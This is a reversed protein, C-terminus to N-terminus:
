SADDKNLAVVRADLGARRAVERAAEVAIGRDKYAGVVPAYWVVGTRDTRTQVSAQYGRGALHGAIAGATDEDLFDGVQVRFAAGRAAAHPDSAPAPQNGDPTDALPIVPAQESHAPVTAAQAADGGTGAAPAPPACLAPAAVLWTATAAGGGFALIATAVIGCGLVVLHRDIGIM